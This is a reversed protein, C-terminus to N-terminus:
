DHLALGTGLPAARRRPQNVFTWIVYYVVPLGLAVVRFSTPIDFVGALVGAAPPGLIAGADLGANYVASAMGVSGGSRQREDAVATASTVRLLARMLAFLVFAGGLLWEHTTVSLTVGAAAILLIGAHTLTTPRWARLAGAAAFRISASAVASLSRYVGITAVAIGVGVAYIPFFSDYADQAFNLYFGVLCALWVTAPLGAIARLGGPSAHAQTHDHARPRPMSLALLVGVLGVIASFVFGAQVSVIEIAQAGLLSGLGYGTTIAATFWAISPAANATRPQADVLLALLFTTVLGFAFGHVVALAAQLLWVDTYGLAGATLGFVVLSAAIQRGALASRYWAGAPLRSLLSGVSLLGFAVGVLNLPDGLEHQRLPYALELAGQSTTTLAVALCVLLLPRRV